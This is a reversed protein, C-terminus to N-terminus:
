GTSSQAMFARWGGFRSIERAGDLDAPEVIFGKVTDGDSLRVTGITLPSPV